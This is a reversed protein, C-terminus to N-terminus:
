RIGNTREVLHALPGKVIRDYIIDSFFKLELFIRNSCYIVVFVGKYDLRKTPKGLTRKDLFGKHFQNIPIETLKSWYKELDSINQDARCQVKGRIRTEDIEFSKRLLILFLEIIKPDSNGFRIWEGNKGGEGLYLMSLIIKATLKDIDKIQKDVKHYIEEILKARKQRISQWAIVRGRGGSEATKNVIRQKSDDSLEINKFWGTFTNKPVRYNIQQIIETYTLGKKRLSQAKQKLEEPYIKPM